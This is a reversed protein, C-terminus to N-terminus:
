DRVGGRAVYVDMNVNSIVDKIKNLTRNLFFANIM